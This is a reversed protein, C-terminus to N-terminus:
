EEESCFERYEKEDMLKDLESLNEPDIVAIYNEYPDENLLEPSDELADNVEIVTGSVPSYIDSATKVSEVVSIADGAKVKKGAAPLEVYVIDGLANQAYDSIGIYVKGGEERAWEHEKTFKVGELIGM